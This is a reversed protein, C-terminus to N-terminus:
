CCGPGACERIGRNESYGPGRNQHRLYKLPYPSSAAFRAVMAETGDPSGDDVVLVEYRDKPLTQDALHDLTRRLVKERNYTAVVVSLFSM